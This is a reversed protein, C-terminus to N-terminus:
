QGFANIDYIPFLYYFLLFKLFYSFLLFGEPDGEYVVAAVTEPLRQQEKPTLHLYFFVSSSLPCINQCRSNTVDEIETASHSM